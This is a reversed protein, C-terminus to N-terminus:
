DLILALQQNVMRWCALGLCIDLARHAVPELCVVLHILKQLAFVTQGFFFFGAKVTFSPRIDKGWSSKGRLAIWDRFLPAVPYNGGPQVSNRM